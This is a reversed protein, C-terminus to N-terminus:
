PVSQVWDVPSGVNLIFFGQGVGISQDPSWGGAKKGSITYGVGNWTMVKSGVPLGAPLNLSGSGTNTISGGIPYQSGVLEYGAALNNTLSGPIAGAVNGVFTNTAATAGANYVFFGTGPPIAAVPSWGGAKKGSINYGTGNWTMVKSGIPLADPVLNSSVNGSGNDLPNAVLTYGPGAPIPTNVYGVINVSYVNSQASASLLGATLAAAAVLLTKQM